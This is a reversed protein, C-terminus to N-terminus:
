VQLSIGQSKRHTQDHMEFTALMSKFSKEGVLHITLVM